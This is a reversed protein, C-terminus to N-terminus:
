QLEKLLAALDRSGHLLAAITIPKTEPYYAIIYAGFTIYRLDDHGFETRQHGTFPHDALLRLRSDLATLFRDAAAPSNLYLYELVDTLDRSAPTLFRYPRM